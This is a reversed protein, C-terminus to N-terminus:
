IENNRVWVWLAGMVIIGFLMGASFIMLGGIWAGEM